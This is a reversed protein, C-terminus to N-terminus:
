LSSYISDIEIDLVYVAHWMSVRNVIAKDSLAMWFKSELDLSLRSKELGTFLKTVALRKGSWTAAVILM